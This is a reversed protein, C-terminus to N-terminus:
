NTCTLAHQYENPFYEGAHMIYPDEGEQVKMEGTRWNLRREYRICRPCQFIIWDGDRFSECQHREANTSQDNLFADMVVNSQYHNPAIIQFCRVSDPLCKRMRKNYQFIPPKPIVEFFIKKAGNYISLTTTTDGQVDELFHQIHLLNM